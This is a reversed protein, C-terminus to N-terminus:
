DPRHKLEECFIKNIDRALSVEVEKPTYVIVDWSFRRHPILKSIKRARQNRRLKSDVISFLHLESNPDPKGFAHSGVLIM